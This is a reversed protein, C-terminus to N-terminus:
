WLGAGALLVEGAFLDARGGAPACCRAAAARGPAAAYAGRARREGGWNTMIGHRGAGAGRVFIDVLRDTAFDV